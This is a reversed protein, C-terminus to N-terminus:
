YSGTRQVHGTPYLDDCNCRLAHACLIAAWVLAHHRLLSRIKETRGCVALSLSSSRGAVGLVARTSDSAGLRVFARTITQVSLCVSAGTNYYLHIADNSNETLQVKIETRQTNSITLNCQIHTPLQYSAKPASAVREWVGVCALM